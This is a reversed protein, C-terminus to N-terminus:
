AERRRKRWADALVVDRTIGSDPIDKAKAYTVPSARAKQVWPYPASVAITGFEFPTGSGVRVGAKVEKTLRNPHVNCPTVENWTSTVGVFPGAIDEDTLGM